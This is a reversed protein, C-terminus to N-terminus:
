PAHLYLIECLRGIAQGERTATVGSALPVDNVFIAFVLERGKATTMVGALSKARLHSSGRLLNDDIYTGTKGKVKGRAPSSPPVSSVLTGDVGLIPLAAEFASWDPRKRLAQLLQVTVRPSVKDGDGGGAGSELSFTKLDLGLEGLLKGQLRMGEALTRKGHKVGVLLPLMSAHLNHSVKLIVKLAESLPLSRHLAVRPLRAYSAEEPLEAEPARLPSASVKVGAELLADIFLARAYGAPDDITCTRVQPAAGVPIRGRVTYRHPGVRRVTINVRGAETVTEVRADVQVFATAPHLRVQAPQGAKSAPQVLVDVLNDNVVIPTLLGPGSGSGRAQEFFRTDILVDGKIEDIGGAKVQRALDRLGALPDTPTIQTTTKTPGAYIHDDDAFAMKGERTTRGGLTLDGRAVLILDDGRQYVPTEFRHEAGLAVLAAACSYLKTVSAPAFLQDANHEVLPKGTASDVVLVGWRAHRYEPRKLLQDVERALPTEQAVLLSPVILLLFAIRPSMM